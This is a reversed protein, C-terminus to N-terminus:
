MPAKGAQGAAKAYRLSAQRCTYYRHSIVCFGLALMCSLLGARVVKQERVECLPGSAQETAVLMMGRTDDRGRLMAEVAARGLRTGWLSRSVKWSCKFLDVLISASRPAPSDADDPSGVNRPAPPRHRV